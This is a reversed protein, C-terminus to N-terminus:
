GPTASPVVIHTENTEPGITDISMLPSLREEVRHDAVDRWSLCSYTDPVNRSSRDHITKEVIDADVM